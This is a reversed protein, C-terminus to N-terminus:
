LRGDRWATVLTDAVLLDREDDVNALYRAPMVYAAPREGIVLGKRELTERRVAYIAGNRYYVAPLEQRRAREWEPWLAALGGGELRYMRGPHVDEMACVSVVSDFAPGTELLAVAADVDKGTRIPSTPQLLVLVDYREGWRREAEELAHRLVPAIPTEDGALEGPRRVVPADHRRSVDAIEHDDTTVVFRDLVRSERASRIAHGILPEGGVTRLNKRAIGKSGGRAPIVGLVKM